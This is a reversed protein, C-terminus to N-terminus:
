MISAVYTANAATALGCVITNLGCCTGVVMVTTIALGSAAGVKIAKFININMM